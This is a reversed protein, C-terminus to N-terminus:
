KILSLKYLSCKRSVSHRIQCQALFAALDNEEKLSYINNWLHCVCWQVSTESFRKYQNGSM